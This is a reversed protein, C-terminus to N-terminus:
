EGEQTERFLQLAIAGYVVIDRLSDEASENALTGQTIYVKLRHIKDNLRVLAGVYPEIGFEASARINALPDATSGYDQSKKDHLEALETLLTRFALSQMQAVTKKLAM